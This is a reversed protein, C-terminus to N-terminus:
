GGRRRRADDLERYGMRVCGWHRGRVTVPVSADKMMVFGDAGLDRRYIQLLFPDRNAGCRRGVRDDFIKHNRCHAANWAPDGGQPLSVAANHTSVYGNRDAPILYVVAPDFRLGPEIIEPVVRDSFASHPAIHQPPNSGAVPAYDLSFLSAEDIEGAALGAEFRASLQGAVARVHEIFRQEGGGDGRQVADHLLGECRDMMRIARNRAEHVGSATIGAVEEITATVPDLAAGADELQGVVAVMGDIMERATTMGEAITAVADSSVTASEIGAAFDPALRESDARLVRTWEDLSAIGKGIRATAAATQRSLDGVAEAVVAFGRGAAGARAAEISANVALINVQRAIKAIEDKGCVIAELVGELEAARTGIRAGWDSLARIREANERISGVCLVAERETDAATEHLAAFGATLTVSACEVASTGHRLPALQALTRRAAGDIGDLFGVLDVIEYGVPVISDAIGGGGARLATAVPEAPMQRNGIAPANM